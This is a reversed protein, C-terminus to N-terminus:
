SIQDTAVHKRYIMPFTVPESTCFFLTSYMSADNELFYVSYIFLYHTINLLSTFLRLRVKKLSSLLLPRRRNTLLSGCSLSVRNTLLLGWLSVRNTLLLGRLSVRNTLLLGRLSVRNALTPKSQSLQHSATTGLDHTRNGPFALASLFFQLKFAIYTVKSLLTQYIYYRPRYIHYKVDKVSLM